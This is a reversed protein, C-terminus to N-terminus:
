YINDLLNEFHNPLEMLQNIYDDFIMKDKEKSFFPHNILENISYRSTYNISLCCKILDLFLLLNLYDFKESDFLLGGFINQVNVNNYNDSTIKDEYNNQMVKDLKAFLNKVIIEIIGKFTRKHNVENDYPNYLKGVFLEILLVGFSWVDTKGVQSSPIIIENKKFLEPPIFLKSGGYPLNIEEKNKDVKVSEGFDIIKIIGDNSLLINDGKIDMHIINKSHIYQLGNLVQPMYLELLDLNIGNINRAISTLSKGCIDEMYIEMIKNKLSNDGDVNEENNVIEENYKEIYGIYKIINKHHLEKMIFIENKIKKRIKEPTSDKQNNNDTPNFLRSLGYTENITGETTGTGSQFDKLLLKGRFNEGDFDIRKIIIPKGTKKDIGKVVSGFSGNGINEICCMYNNANIANDIQM